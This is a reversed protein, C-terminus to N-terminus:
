KRFGRKIRGVVLGLGLSFAVSLATIAAMRQYSSRREYNGCLVPQARLESRWSIVATASCDDAFLGRTANGSAYVIYTSGAFFEVSNISGASIVVKPLPQGKLWHTVVFTTSGDSADVRVAKGVFVYDATAFSETASQKVCLHAMATASAMALILTAFVVKRLVRM